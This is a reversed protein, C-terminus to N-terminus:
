SGMSQLRSTAETWPIRWAHIGSYTAMGKELPDEQGLSWVTTEQTVPLNKLKYNRWLKNLWLNCKKLNWPLLLSQLDYNLIEEQMNSFFMVKFKKEFYLQIYEKAYINTM